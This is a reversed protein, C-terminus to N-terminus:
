PKARKPLAKIVSRLLSNVAEPSRFVAAVDPDLVVVNCNARMRAYYKGRELKKFDARKYEPRVDDSTKKDKRVTVFRNPRSKAYDFRYERQIEDRMIRKGRSAKKM